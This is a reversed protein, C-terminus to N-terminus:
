SDSRCDHALPIARFDTISSILMRIGFTVSAAILIRVPTAPMDLSSAPDHLLLDRRRIRVRSCAHQRWVSLLQRCLETVAHKTANAAPM